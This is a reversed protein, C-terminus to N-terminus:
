LRGGRFIVVMLIAALVSALTFGVFSVVPVGLYPVQPGGTAFGGIVASGILLAGTVVAFVLRNALIDVEGILDDLGEHNFRVELEGDELEKLFQRIQEPYDELYRAYELSREQLQEALAEPRLRDWLLRDAFPRAVEYVNLSPDISRALGEATILAKTLLPYVPPVRVRYRRAVGIIEGLADGLTVEGVSLGSYKFLFERVEQVLESRVEVDYTLGLRELGRVVAPADRQIVAIFLNSLAEMEGRSMYGVMGFDLLALNGEPTLILNAPHPDGHFFGHEFAMQFIAEAGMTAIRRREEPELLLPNISYFKRGEVYELTLVRRTSLERYVGPIVVPTGAFNAAFREANLAETEYDLERRIVDEFELVLREVDIFLRDGFRRNILAALRNMLELDAEVRPAAEPRQVKVAVAEGGPLVARHVQGISASGLPQPDFHAFLKEVPAGLEYEIVRRVTELPMPAVEDQLKRLEQLVREPLLDSRTSLMQGFKVFTPGLDDLARRLRVGFSPALVEEAGRQRRSRRVDFVFGFGHRALVRGIQSFRALNEARTM